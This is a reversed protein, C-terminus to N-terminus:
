AVRLRDGTKPNMGREALRGAVICGATGGGLVIVDYYDHGDGTKIAAPPRANTLKVLDGEYWYPLNKKAEARLQEEEEWTPPGKYGAIDWGTVIKRSNPNTIQHADGPQLIPEGQANRKAEHEPFNKYYVSLIRTRAGRYFAQLHRRQEEDT